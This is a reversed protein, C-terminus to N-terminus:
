FWNVPHHFGDVHNLELYVARARLPHSVERECVMGLRWGNARGCVSVLAVLGHDVYYVVGAGGDGLADFDEFHLAVGFDTYWGGGGGEGRVGCVMIGVLM